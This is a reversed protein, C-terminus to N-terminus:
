APLLEVSEVWLIECAGIGADTRSTSTRWRSGDPSRANVLRGRIRVLHGAKVRSLRGGVAPTAPILHINASHYVIERPTIPYEEAEWTYVRQTQIITFQDLIESDSMPGWGIALDYPALGGTEDDHYAKKGLVRAEAEFRAVPTLVYGNHRIPDAQDLAVQRPEDPALVGPPHTIPRNVYWIGAGLALLAALSLRLLM